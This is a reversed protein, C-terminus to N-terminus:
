QCQSQTSSSVVRYVHLDPSRIDYNACAVISLRPMGITRYWVFLKVHVRLASPM